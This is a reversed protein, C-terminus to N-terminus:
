KGLMGKKLDKDAPKKGLWIGFLAKKFELGSITGKEKGNKYVTTVDNAYVIDFEDEKTIEDNFCLIFAAREKATAKGVSSNEFGDNVAGIMKEQSVMGSVIHLKIAMPAGSNIVSTADSSKTQTYLGGAYLDIWMKERMGAGNLTMDAGSLTVKNPLTVDGVKTQAMSLNACIVLAVLFVLKKMKNM